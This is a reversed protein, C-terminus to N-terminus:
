DSALRTRGFRRRYQGPTMGTKRKFLKRFFAVDEYGVASSVTQVFRAGEELMEKAASIRVSQLYDGPSRGTAAKFRRIFTRPSMNSKSALLEISLNRDFQEHILTEAARIRDDDHPGSIPLVAYSSQHARPMDVLLSRATQLAIDHGCFKEVLYLSLDVSAYVGGSCLVRQDETIFVEPCWNVKPFRQKYSDAVAWHTTARRGDLLGAAALFGTGTCVGAVYAGREYCKCVWRLMERNRAIQGDLDLGSAPVIIVDPRRIHKLAIQPLLDVGYPTTIAHGDLSAVRVRFRPEVKENRLSQWLTGASYFVEIPALATSAYNDNVLVTIVEIPKM